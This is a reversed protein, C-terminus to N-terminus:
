DRRLWFSSPSPTVSCMQLRGDVGSALFRTTLLNLNEEIEGNKYEVVTSTCPLSVLESIGPRSAVIMAASQNGRLFAQAAAKTSTSANTEEPQFTLLLQSPDSLRWVKVRNDAGATTLTDTATDCIISRVATGAHANPNQAIVPNKGRLDVIVIDGRKTGM